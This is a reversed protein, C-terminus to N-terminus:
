NIKEFSYKCNIRPKSCVFSHSVLFVVLGEMSLSMESMWIWENIRQCFSDNLKQNWRPAPRHESSLQTPFSHWTFHLACFKFVFSIVSCPSFSLVVVLIRTMWSRYRGWERGREGPKHKWYKCLKSITQLGVYNSAYAAWPLLPPVLPGDSHPNKSKPNKKIKRM